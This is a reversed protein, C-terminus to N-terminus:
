EHEPEEEVRVVGPIQSQTVEAIAPADTTAPDPAPTGTVGTTELSDEDVEGTITERKRQQKM